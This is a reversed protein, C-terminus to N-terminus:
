TPIDLDLADVINHWFMLVFALAGIALEAYRMGFASPEMRRRILLGLVGMLIVVVVASQVAIFADSSWDRFVEQLPAYVRVVTEPMVDYVVLPLAALGLFTLVLPMRHLVHPHKRIISLRRSLFRGFNGSEQIVDAGIWLWLPVSLGWLAPLMQEIARLLDAHSHTWALVYPVTLGVWLLGFRIWPPVLQQRWIPLAAIASGIISKLGISLALSGPVHPPFQAIALPWLVRGTWRRLFSAPHLLEFVHIAGIALLLFGSGVTMVIPLGLYYLSYVAIV